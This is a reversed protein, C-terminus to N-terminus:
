TPIDVLFSTGKGLSSEISIEGNHLKICEAVVTLGLGSGKVMRANSARYFPEYIYELDAEPIGIGQDCIEFHLWGRHNFGISFTVESNRESFILANQLLNTLVNKLLYEDVNLNPIIGNVQMKIRNSVLTMETCENVLSSCFETINVEARKLELKGKGAADVITVKDLVRLLSKVAMKSLEFADDITQKDLEFRHSELLQLNSYIISLPTRFEHSVNSIYKSKVESLEREHKLSTHIAEQRTKRETIDRIMAHIGEFRGLANAYPASIIEVWCRSGDKRRLEIETHDPNIEGGSNNGANLHQFGNWVKRIRAFSDASLISILLKLTFESTKYGTLQTFSPSLFILNGHVDIVCFVDPINEAVIKFLANRSGSVSKMRLMPTINRLLTFMLRKKGAEVPVKFVSFLCEGEADELEIFFHHQKNELLLEFDHNRGHELMREIADSWIQETGFNFDALPRSASKGKYTFTTPEGTEDTIYTYILLIDAFEESLPKGYILDTANTLNKTLM